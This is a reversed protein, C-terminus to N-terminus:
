IEENKKSTLLINLLNVFADATNLASSNGEEDVLKLHKDIIYKFWNVQSPELQNIDIEEEESSEEPEAKNEEDL